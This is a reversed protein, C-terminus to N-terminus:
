SRAASLLADYYRSGMERLAGPGFHICTTNGCPYGNAPTLDDHNSLATFPVLNPLNRHALDVLQKDPPFDSLDGREDAGRSM